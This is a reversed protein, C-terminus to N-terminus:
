SRAIDRGTLKIASQVEDRFRDRNRDAGKQMYHHGQIDGGNATTGGFEQIRAYEVVTFVEGKLGDTEQQISGQLNSTDVPAEERAVDQVKRATAEVANGLRKEAEDPYENLKRELSSTDFELQAM